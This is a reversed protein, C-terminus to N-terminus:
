FLLKLAALAALVSVANKFVTENIRKVAWIGLVGGIMIVPLLKLNFALSDATIIGRHFMFPMKVLNILLFFWAGTGIFSKKPLACALLYVSMVPGAANALMTTVGCLVGLFARLIWGSGQWSIEKQKSFHSFALMILVIGAIVWRLVDDPIRSALRDAVVLGLFVWPFLPWLKSWDAHRRYYSVALVDAMCLVPLLVGVSQGPQFIMAFLPVALLGTGAVGTKAFGVILGSLLAVGWQWNELVFM